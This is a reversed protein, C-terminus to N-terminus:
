SNCPLGLILFMRFDPCKRHCESTLLISTWCLYATWLGAWDLTWNKCHGGAGKDKGCGTSHKDERCGTYHMLGPGNDEGCGTSHKDEGCGTYHMLGPGNIREM